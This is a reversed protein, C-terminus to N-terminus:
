LKLTLDIKFEEEKETEKDEHEADDCDAGRNSTSGYYIETMTIQQSVIGQDVENIVENYQYGYGGHYPIITNQSILGQNGNLYNIWDKNMDEIMKKLRKEQRHCNQHGGLAQPSIFKRSCFNCSYAHKIGNNPDIIFGFLLFPSMEKSSKTSEEEGGDVDSEVLVIAKRKNDNNQIEMTKFNVIPEENVKEKGKNADRKNTNCM